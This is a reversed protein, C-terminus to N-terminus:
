NKYLLFTSAPLNEQNVLNGHSYPKWGYRVCLFDDFQKQIIVKKGKIFGDAKRFIGDTGAIELERVPQGDSTKIKNASRFTIVVSDDRKKVNFPVPGEAVVKRGYVKDLAQLAFREAVERKKLPHVNLSDGLDSTVVLGTNPIGAVLQRQVDRFLPWTPRDISSLQAVLVPLSTDNWFKRWSSIFESFAVKYLDTNHANSEGQYWIVGRIPFKEFRSIGAEFVYAPDYPHRQTAKDKLNINKAARQRVWEFILDNKERNLFEDVLIPNFELSKRDIFSEIPAGGAAVQVLGVPVKLQKRLFTGFYYGIASFESALDPSIKQWDGTFFDLRNIKDLSNRDFVVDNTKVISKCNFIRLEPDNANQADAKGNEAKILEFEMNSQGSCLWVEGSLIDKWDTKVVGNVNVLLSCPGGSPVPSFTIEWRGDRGVTVQHYESHFSIEIRDGANSSGYFVVPKKQQVVMHDCFVPAWRFGGYDGTIASYIIKAMMRAGEEDPHLYDAFLDPRQYLPTHLDVLFAGTNFAVQKIKEQIQLFWDRTGSKFRPHGPFIPTMLCIFIRPPKQNKFRFSDILKQYDSLFDDYFNPWNRPDTDNLGLDVVLIDPQYDIAKRYEDTKIYPNHGRFLLTAGNRGFNRVDFSGGLLNGLQAPYSEKEPNKLGYGFTVSNGICAVKVPQVIHEPSQARANVFVVLIFLMALFYDKKM